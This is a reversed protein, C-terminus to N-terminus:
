TSLAKVARYAQDIAQDAYAAAAADSNAIAIRGFSQRATDCPRQGEKWDPDWLPNYEYAYSHPWRNVTIADIDRAADFGGAGLVRSLQDRINREFTEFSTTFLDYHGFRHQDRAPLGPKCPTRLMRVLVPQDPQRPSKYAGIDVPLDLSIMSHYMGPCIVGRVRLKEFAQWNKVAVVTYVLPVKVGYHLAEKQADPLETCIYPIMMNWCAMVVQKGRVTKVDGKQSYAVVVEKASKSPGAHQVHVATSNLRIRVPADPKDLQSYDLKETVVDEASQGGIASPILSRVLLRAISANGDPFHFFYEDQPTVEGLATYTLGKSPVRDLNMGQFGPYHLAWCDLAPVGDIGIGYLGHTSTQFFPIVDPSAKWLNLLFDKYSLKTLREKKEAQTLGALPDSKDDEIRLIDRRAQESLPTKELFEAWKGKGELYREGLFGVPAHSVLREAGFTQQDFFYALDLGRYVDRDFCKQQLAPPDVGLETLLGRAEKSYPFPSEIAFSGGNALLLRGGPRFENRKAHGGFDDHNDLILIRASNGAQQRYFYAAALGSIGGGVVVLDYGEGTDAPKDADWASGDRLKHAAEFSGPHSGRM